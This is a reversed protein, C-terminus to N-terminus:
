SFMEYTIFPIRTVTHSESLTMMRNKFPVLLHEQAEAKNTFTLTTSNALGAGLIPSFNRIPVFCQEAM